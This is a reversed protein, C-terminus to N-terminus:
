ARVLQSATLSKTTEPDFIHMRDLKVGLSIPDGARVRLQPDVRALVSAGGVKVYLLQENGLHEIVDVTGAVTAGAPADTVNYFDEPRLGVTVERNEFGHVADAVSNSLSILHDGIAVKLAGDSRTIKANPFFNMSPSGIFGAVFQNSPHDYLETPTGFQQIVGSSLVVIRDGMTMAETQDHTVYIM